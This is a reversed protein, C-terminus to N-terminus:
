RYHSGRWPDAWDFNHRLMVIYKLTDKDSRGKRFDEARKKKGNQRMQALHLCGTHPHRETPNRKKNSNKMEILINRQIM